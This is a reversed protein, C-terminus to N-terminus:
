GDANLNTELIKLSLNDGSDTSWIGDGNKWELPLMAFGYGSDGSVKTFSVLEAGKRQNLTIPFPPEPLNEADVRVPFLGKRRSGFNKFRAMIEQGLFCGKTYCVADEFGAEHPLLRHGTDHPVRPLNYLVRKEAVDESDAESFGKEKCDKLFSTTKEAPLLFDLAPVPWRRSPFQYIAGDFDEKPEGAITVVSYVGTLDELEVEDAILYNDLREILIEPEVSPSYVLFEEATAQIFADAVMKGRNDLFLGYITGEEGQELPRLDATFQGQLFPFRDDGTVRVFAFSTKTEFCVRKM